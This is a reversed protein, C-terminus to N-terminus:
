WKVQKAESWLYELGYFTRAEEEFIHIVVEGLDLIVWLANLGLPDRAERLGQTPSPPIGIAKLGEQLGDAIAHVHRDSTGTCLVFYDCFNVRKRMDLIM